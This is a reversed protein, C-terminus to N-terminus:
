AQRAPKVGRAFWSHFTEHKLAAVNSTTGGDYEMSRSPNDWILTVFRDNHIYPGVDNEFNILWNELDVAM